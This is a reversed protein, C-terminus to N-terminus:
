PEKPEQGNSFGEPREKGGKPFGGDPRSGDAPFSGDQSGGNKPFGGGQRGGFGGFGGQNEVVQGDAFYSSTQTITFETMLTGGSYAAELYLGDVSSGEANGGTYIQYNNGKVFDPTSIVVNSYNKAPSYTIINNGNEDEIRIINGAAQSSNYNMSIYCQQGASPTQAMGAAGAAILIGGDMTFGSEYDLAGNASNSPGDVICTGGSMTISGNSDLGDGDANVYLYGGTILLQVGTQAQGMGWGTQQVSGDAANVGDDAATVHLSGGAIHIEKGEIGEYSKSITITGNTVTIIGEAHIGDDGTSLELTGGAIMINQNSHLTDDECDLMISGDLIYISGDAKLGKKSESNTETTQKIQGGGRGFGFGMNDTKMVVSTSGDGTVVALQGGEIFLDAAACVADAKAHINLSGGGIYIWGKNEKESNSSKIGDGDAEISITGAFIQLSDRGVIGDDAATILFQGGAIKLDDKSTIGDKCAAQVELAGSGNICLDDQNYLCATPPNEENEYGSYEAGDYLSNSTGEKLTIILKGSKGYLAPGNSNHISVGDFILHILAKKDAEIRIQGDELSGTLLYTGAAAITLVSGDVAIGGAKDALIHDGSFTIKVANEESINQEEESLSADASPFSGATESAGGLLSIDQINSSDTDSAYNSGSTDPIYSGSSTDSIYSSDSIDSVYSDNSSDPTDKGCASLLLSAIIGCVLIKSRIKEM